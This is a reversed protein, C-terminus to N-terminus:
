DGIMTRVAVFRKLKYNGKTKRYQRWSYQDHLYKMVAAEATLSVHLSLRGNPFKPPAVGANLKHRFQIIM